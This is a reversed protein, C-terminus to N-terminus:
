IPINERCSIDSLAHSFFCDQTTTLIRHNRVITAASSPCWIQCTRVYLCLHQSTMALATWTVLTAHKMGGCVILLITLSFFFSKLSDHHWIINRPFELYFAILYLSSCNSQRELLKVNEEKRLSVFHCQSASVPWSFPASSHLAGERLHCPGNKPTQYWM